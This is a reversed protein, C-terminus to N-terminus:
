ELVMLQFKLDKNEAELQKLKTEYESITLNYDRVLSEIDQKLDGIVEEYEEEAELRKLTPKMAAEAWKQNSKFLEFRLRNIEDIAERLSTPNPPLREIIPYESM